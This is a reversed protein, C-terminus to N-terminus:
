NECLELKLLFSLWDAWLKLAALYTVASASPVQRRYHCVGSELTLYHEKMPAVSAM